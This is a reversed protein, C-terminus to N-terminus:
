YKNKIFLAATMFLFLIVSSGIWVFEIGGLMYFLSGLLAGIINTIPKASNYTGYYEEHEQKKAVEFFYTEQLPEILASGINILVFMSFLILPWSNLFIFSSTGASLILFGLIIYKKVGSSGANKGIYSELLILPLIGLSVVFGVVQQSYNLNSIHLPIYIAGMVWWFNLGSSVIFVKIFEKNKLFDSINTFISLITKNQQNSQIVKNKIKHEQSLVILFAILYFIASLTFISQNGFNKAVIGALIPGILWGINISFYYFGEHKAINQKTSFDKIYLSLSIGITLVGIARLIDLIVLHLLNNTITMLVLSLFTIFLAIKIILKKSFKQFFYTSFISTLLGIISIFAIYLGVQSEDKLKSNIILPLITVFSSNAIGIIIAIILFIRSKPHKHPIKIKQNSLKLM